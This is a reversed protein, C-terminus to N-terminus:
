KIFNKAIKYDDFEIKKDKIIQFKEHGKGAIILIDNTNLKLIAECIAQKRSPIVVGKSCNKKISERINKPNEYRPNDDTIYVKNAYKKAVIAM